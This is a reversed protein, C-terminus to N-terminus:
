RQGVIFEPAVIVTAILGVLVLIATLRLLGATRRRDKPLSEAIGSLTAGVLLFLGATSSSRGRMWYYGYISSLALAGAFMVIAARRGSPESFLVDRVTSPMSGVLRGVHLYSSM